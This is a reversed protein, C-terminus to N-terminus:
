ELKVIKAVSPTLADDLIFLMYFGPPATAGNIPGRLTATGADQSIIQLQVNRQNMDISHTMSGLSILVAEALAKGSWGIM